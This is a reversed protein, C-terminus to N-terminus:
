GLAWLRGFNNLCDLGLGTLQDARGGVNRGVFIVDLNQGRSAVWERSRRSLGSVEGHLGAHTDHGEDLSSHTICGKGLATTETDTM